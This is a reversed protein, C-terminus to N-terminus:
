PVRTWILVAGCPDNFRGPIAAGAYVEVGEIHSPDIIMDYLRIGSKVGDLFLAPECLGGGAISTAREFVVRNGELGSNILRVGSLPGLLDTLDRANREVLDNREFYHGSYGSGQREYFGRVELVRSRVVVEIPEVAIPDVTLVLRVHVTANPPVRVTDSRPAYGLSEVSLLHEGAPVSPILFRGQDDSLVQIDAMVIAVDTLRREGTPDLVVGVVRGRPPERDATQQALSASAGACLSAILGLALLSYRMM